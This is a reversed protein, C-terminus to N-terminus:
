VKAGGSFSGGHFGCKAGGAGGDGQQGSGHQGMGAIGAEVDNVGDMDAAGATPIIGTEVAYCPAEVDSVACADGDDIDVGALHCWVQGIRLAGMDGQRQVVSFGDQDGLALGVLDTEDICCGASHQGIDGRGTFRVAGKEVRGGAADEHEVIVAAADVRDIRLGMGEDPRDRELARRFARGGVALPQDEDMELVGVGQDDDVRARQADFRGVIELVAVLRRTQGQHGILAQDQRRAFAADGADGIGVCACLHRFQGDALVGVARQVVGARM